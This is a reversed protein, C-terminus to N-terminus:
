QAYNILIDPKTFSFVGKTPEMADYKMENEAVLMNFNDKITKDYQSNTDYEYYFQYGVVAGIKLGSCKDAYYSLSQVQQASVTLYSSLIICFIFFKKLTM